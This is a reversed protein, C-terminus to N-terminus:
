AASSYSRIVHPYRTAIRILALGSGTPLARDQEWNQLTRVSIGLAKALQTQSLALYRRLAAVDGPELKGDRLRRYQAHPIARAFDADTWEPPDLPRTAKTKM